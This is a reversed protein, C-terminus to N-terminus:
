NHEWYPKNQCQNHLIISQEKKKNKKKVVDKQIPPQKSKKTPMSDKVVMGDKTKHAFGENEAQGNIFVVM